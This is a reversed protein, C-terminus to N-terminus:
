HPARLHFLYPAADQLPRQAGTDLRTLRFSTPNLMLVGFGMRMSRLGSDLGYTLDVSLHTKYARSSVSITISDGAISYKTFDDGGAHSISDELKDLCGVLYPPILGSGIWSTGDQFRNALGARGEFRTQSIAQRFPQHYSEGTDLPSDGLPNPVLHIGSDVIDYTLGMGDPSLTYTRIGHIQPPYPTCCNTSSASDFAFRFLSAAAPDPATMCFKASPVSATECGTLLIFGLLSAAQLPERLFGSGM